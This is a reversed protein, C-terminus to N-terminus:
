PTFPVSERTCLAGAYACAAHLAPVCPIPCISHPSPPIAVRDAHPYPACCCLTPTDRGLIEPLVGGRLERPRVPLATALWFGRRRERPDQMQRWAYGASARTGVRPM